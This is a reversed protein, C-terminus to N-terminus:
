SLHFNRWSRIGIANADETECRLPVDIVTIDSANAKLSLEHGAEEISPSDPVEQVLGDM